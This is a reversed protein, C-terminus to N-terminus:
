IRCAVFRNSRIGFPEHSTLRGGALKRGILSAAVFGFTGTVFTATGLGHDCDVRGSEGGQRRTRVTGDKAPYVVPEPSFVAEVGFPAKGRPLGYDTKLGTRVKDLLRDHSAFALDTVRVQTPDRRGGAGGSVVVPIGQDRCRAILLCKMASDDIADVLYDFPASLLGSATKATFFALVPRVACDPNIAQIRRAVVEVKPKGYDGALAHLQRNSNSLCVEDFDALTLQGVGSRALAEAAWSGVGGLGIVGVQARRLRELGAQGVLRAIGSFRSAYGDMFIVTRTKGNRAACDV